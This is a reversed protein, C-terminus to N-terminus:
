NVVEELNYEKMHFAKIRHGAESVVNDFDVLYMYGPDRRWGKSEEKIERIVGTVGNLADYYDPVWLKPNGIAVLVTQGPTFKPM